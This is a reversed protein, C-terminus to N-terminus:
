KIRAGRPVRRYFVLANEEEIVRVPIDLAKAAKRLLKKCRLPDEDKSFEYIVADKGDLRSINAKFQDFLILDEQSLKKRTKLESKTVIKFTGM